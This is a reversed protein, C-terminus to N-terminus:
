HRYYLRVVSSAPIADEDCGEDSSAYQIPSSGIPKENSINVSPNGIAKKELQSFQVPSNSPIENKNDIKDKDPLYMVLEDSSSEDDVNAINFKAFSKTM